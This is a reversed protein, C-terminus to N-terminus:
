RQGDEITLTPAALAGSWFSEIERSRRVFTVVASSGGAVIAPGSPCPLTVPALFARWPRDRRLSLDSAGKGEIRGPDM